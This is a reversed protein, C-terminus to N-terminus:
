VINNMIYGKSSYHSLLYAYYGESVEQLLGKTKAEIKLRSLIDWDKKLILRLIKVADSNIEIAEKENSCCAKCIVGGSNNSFYLSDPNLKQQCLVCQLLEPAHGLISIFNWFFYYYVLSYNNIPSSYADLKNFSDNLLNFINEDKEEGKILDDLVDSIKYAIELKEPVLFINNFKNILVANILTKKNRGQIFEVESFSFIEIGSRLKSTIKRIAKGIVKVRGFDKTFVSFVRDAEFRDEKKFVIGKTTYYETM